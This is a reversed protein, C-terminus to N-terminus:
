RNRRMWRLWCRRRHGTTSATSRRASGARRRNQSSGVNGTPPRGSAVRRQISEVASRIALNFAVGSGGMTLRSFVVFSAGDEKYRYPYRLGFSVGGSPSTYEHLGDCKM